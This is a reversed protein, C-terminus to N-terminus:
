QWPTNMLVASRAAGPDEILDTLIHRSIIFFSHQISMIVWYKKSAACGLDDASQALASHKGFFNFKGLHLM